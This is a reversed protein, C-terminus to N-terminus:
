LTVYNYAGAEPPMCSTPVYVKQAHVAGVYEWGHWGVSMAKWAAGLGLGSLMLM